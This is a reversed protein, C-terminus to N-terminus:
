SFQIQAFEVIQRIRERYYPEEQVRVHIELGPALEIRQWSESPRAQRRQPRSPQPPIKRAAEAPQQGELKPANLNAALYELAGGLPQEKIMMKQPPLMDFMQMSQGSNGTELRDLMERIQQPDLGVIRDRIEKLPLFANKLKLILELRTSYEESYTAYRGKMDPAPLLGEIIYYRITRVSVGVKEALENISYGEQDM